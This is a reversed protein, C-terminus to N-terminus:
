IIGIELSGPSSEGQAPSRSILVEGLAFLILNRRYRRRATVTGIEVRTATDLDVFQVNSGLLRM